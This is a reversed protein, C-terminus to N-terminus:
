YAGRLADIGPYAGPLAPAARRLEYGEVDAEPDEADSDEADPEPCGGGDLRTLAAALSAEDADGLAETLGDVAACDPAFGEFYDGEGEANLLRFTIPYAAKDCFEFQASGVPKGATAAGVVSVPAFPRVANIVLESASATSGTTIFVVHDLHELSASKRDIRRTSNAESLAPAYDTRYSIEGSAQSGILLDVLHRAASIRGGGNYRMDIVVERVGAAAFREFAESLEDISPEVFTTFFLYGVPRGDHDLIDVQPVTVLPYWDKTLSVATPADADPGTVQLDVHVGPENPGFADGWTGEADLEAVTFDGIRLVEDGRQLGALGAPSQPDVFGLVVRDDDTRRTRFGLGIVMGEEFLADSTELDSVRSWRDLTDYRLESVLASPSEFAAPDIDDPVHENWLYAHQMLRYMYANQEPISCDRPQGFDLPDDESCGAGLSLAFTAAVVCRSM